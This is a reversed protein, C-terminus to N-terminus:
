GVEWSTLPKQFPMRPQLTERHHGSSTKKDGAKFFFIFWIHDALLSRKWRDSKACQEDVQRKATIIAVLPVLLVLGAHLRLPCPLPAWGAPEARGPSPRAGRREWPQWDRPATGWPLRQQPSVRLEGLRPALLLSRSPLCGGIKVRCPRWGAPLSWRPRRQFCLRFSAPFFIRFWHLEPAVWRQGFRVPLSLGSAFVSGFKCSHLPFHNYVVTFGWISRTRCGAPVASAAPNQMFIIKHYHQSTLSSLVIWLETQASIIEFAFSVIDESSGSHLSLASSSIDPMFRATASVLM